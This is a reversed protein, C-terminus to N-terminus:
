AFLIYRVNLVLTLCAVIMQIRVSERIDIEIGRSEQLRCVFGDYDELCYM